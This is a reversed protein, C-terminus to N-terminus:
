HRRSGPFPYAIAAMERAADEKNARMFLADSPRLALYSPVEEGCSEMNTALYDRNASVVAAASSSSSSSPAEVGGAAASSRPLM